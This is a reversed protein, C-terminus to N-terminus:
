GVELVAVGSARAAAIQRVDLSLLPAQAARAVALVYADYAYLNQELALRLAEPVDIDPYRLAIHLFANWGRAVDRAALQRRRVLAILANGIEWPLSPAGLLAVGETARLLSPRAPENLLM